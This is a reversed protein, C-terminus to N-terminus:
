LNTSSPKNGMVFTMESSGEQICTVDYVNIDNYSKESPESSDRKTVVVYEPDEIEVKLL